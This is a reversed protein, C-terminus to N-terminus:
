YYQKLVNLDKKWVQPMLDAVIQGAKLIVIRDAISSLFELDHSAIVLITGTKKVTQLIRVVDQISVVDLGSTPEDCLLTDPHMALARALAVRQKQGGSLQGPFVDAFEELNLQRLLQRANNEADLEGLVHIPAYTINELVSMHPFLQFDQFLFGKYGLGYITGTDGEDLGQICRLLTSKGSGSPGALGVISGRTVIELSIDKLVTRDGLVKSLEVITIM